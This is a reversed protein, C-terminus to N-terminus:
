NREEKLLDMIDVAWLRSAKLEAEYMNKKENLSEIQTKMKTILIDKNLGVRNLGKEAKLKEIQETLLRQIQKSQKEKIIAEKFDADSETIKVELSTKEYQINELQERLISNELKM